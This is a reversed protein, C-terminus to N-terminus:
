DCSSYRSLEAHFQGDAEWRKDVTTGYGAPHYEDMYKDIKSQLEEATPASLTTTVM